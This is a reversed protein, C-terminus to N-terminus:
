PFEAIQCELGRCNALQELYTKLKTRQHVRNPSTDAHLSDIQYRDTDLDYFEESIPEGQYYYQFFALNDEGLTKPLTRVAAYDPVEWPLNSSSKHEILFRTRWNEIEPDDIVPLISVGDVLHAPPVGALAAITPALDNNLVVRDTVRVGEEWPVRIYLPVRISEEYAATKGPILHRGQLYGNDSTFMIVTSDLAGHEEVAGVVAGIMDDVALMSALMANFQREVNALDQADLKPRFNLWGPKDSMDEENFSPDHPMPLDFSGLHRPAPRISLEYWGSLGHLTESWDEPFEVHPPLPVAWLFFPDPDDSAFHGNVFDVAADTYTDTQYDEEADGYTVLTGNANVTYGYMQYVGAATVFWFDWGPPIYTRETLDGYGNLYKGVIATRYGAAQLWTAVTSSEDLNVVSGLPANNNWVNNNHSYQGTLFTARSPCCLPDSVFSDTFELGEDIIYRKLNPMADNELLINLIRCELDDVMFVVM